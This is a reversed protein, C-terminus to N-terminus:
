NLKIKRWMSLTQVETAFGEHDANLGDHFLAM